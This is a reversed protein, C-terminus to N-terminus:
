YSVSQTASVLILESKLTKGNSMSAEGDAMRAADYGYVSRKGSLAEIKTDGASSLADPATSQATASQLYQVSLLTDLATAVVGSSELLAHRIAWSQLDPFLDQLQLIDTELLGSNSFESDPLM